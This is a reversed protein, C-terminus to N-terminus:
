IIKNIGNNETPGKPLLIIKSYFFETAQTYNEFNCM